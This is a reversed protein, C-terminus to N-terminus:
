ESGFGEGRLTVMLDGIASALYKSLAGVDGGIAALDWHVVVTNFPVEDLYDAIDGELVVVVKAGELADPEDSLSGRQVDTIEFGLKTAVERVDTDVEGAASLGFAKYRGHEPYAKRAILTAVPAFRSCERDVFVVRAPKRRKTEGTEAFIAYECINKAQDSVRELTSLIVLKGFLDGTTRSSAIGTSLIHELAARFSRDIQSEFGITGRALDASGQIFARIAQDFMDTSGAAITKIRALTDHDMPETLQVAVRCITAAYDGVRELVVNLRMVSSIFRLHKAAPLFRAVFHHCAADCQEVKRNIPNDNLITEYALRKNHHELADMSNSIAAAVDSAISAIRAKIDELDRELRAEYHHETM